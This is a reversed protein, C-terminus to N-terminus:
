SANVQEVDIVFVSFCFETLQLLTKSFTKNVTKKFIVKKQVVYIKVLVM